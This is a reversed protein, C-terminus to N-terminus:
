FRTSAGLYAGVNLAAGSLTFYQVEPFAVQLRFPGKLAIDAVLSARSTFAAGSIGESTGGYLGLAFSAGMRVKLSPPSIFYYTGGGFLAVSGASGFGVELTASMELRPVRRTARGIRLTVAGTISNPSKSDHLVLSRLAISSQVFRPAISAKKAPIGNLEEPLIEDFEENPDALTDEIGMERRAAASEVAELTRGISDYGELTERSDDVGRPRIMSYLIEKLRIDERSHRVDSVIRELRGGKAWYVSLHLQYGGELPEIGAVLVYDAEYFRAIAHYEALSKPVPISGEGPLEELVPFLELDRVVRLLAAHIAELRAPGLLVEGDVIHPPHVVVREADAHSPLFLCILSALAALRRLPALLGFRLSTRRVAADGFRAILCLDRSSVFGRCAGRSGRSFSAGVAVERIKELAPASLAARKRKM